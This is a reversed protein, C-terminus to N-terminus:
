EGRISALAFSLKESVGISQMISEIDSQWGADSASQGAKYRQILRQYRSLQDDTMVDVSEAFTSDLKEKILEKTVQM